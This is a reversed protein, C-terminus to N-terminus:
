ANPNGYYGPYPHDPFSELQRRLKNELRNQVGSLNSRGYLNNDEGPDNQLDYLQDRQFYNPNNRAAYFGLHTNTTYYPEPIMENRYGRFPEGRAIQDRVAKPYRVTVLKYRKETMGRAWGCETYVDDRIPSTGGEFLSRASVGDLPLDNGANVGCFDLITPALDVSSVLENCTRGAPVVGPFTVMAPVKVGNDYMTTKGTDRENHDTIFVVMTNEAMGFLELKRNLAGVMEDFQTYGASQLSKGADLAFRKLSARDWMGGNPPNEIYGEGTMRPDADLGYALKGNKLWTPGPGHNLTPAFWLFAPKNADNAASLFRQVGRMMWEPNHVYLSDNYLERLNYAYNSDAFDFGFEMIRNRLWEHNARMKANVSPTRPDATQSYHQIQNSREWDPKNKFTDFDSLHWKGVCGTFYGGRQMTRPLNSWRHGPNELETNLEVKAMTGAPCQREFQPGECRSAYRGTLAVYRSPACVSSAVYFRSFKVGNDAMKQLNPTYVNGGFSSIAEEAMDDAFIVVVNPKAKSGINARATGPLAAAAALGAMGALVSRRNMTPADTMSPAPPIGAGPDAKGNSTARPPKAHFM